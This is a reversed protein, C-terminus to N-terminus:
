PFELPFPCQKQPRHGTVTEPMPALFPRWPNAARLVLGPLTPLIETQYFVQGPFGAIRGGNRRKGSNGASQGLPQSTDPGATGHLQAVLRTPCISDSGRLAKALPRPFPELHSHWRRRIRPVSPIPDRAFRLSALLELAVPALASGGLSERAGAPIDPVLSPLSAKRGSVPSM